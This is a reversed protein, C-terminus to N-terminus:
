VSEEGERQRALQERLKTVHHVGQQSAVPRQEARLISLAEEFPDLFPSRRRAPSSTEAAVKRASWTVILEQEARTMAVYLLRREEDNAEPSSAGRHPVFGDSVGVVFVSSWELGKARHFTGLAVADGHEEVVHPRELDVPKRVDSARALDPALYECPIGNAKLTDAILVLQANTRALVAFSRWSRGSVRLGRLKSAVFTAEEFDDVSSVLEPIAGSNQTARVDAGSNSPLVAAASSVIEPSSRHNADLVIIRTGEIRRDLTRLLSPDAGNFGYISQNPDGVCFLTAAPSLLRTIMAFQMPNVDQFEDVLVHRSRWHIAEAFTPDELARAAEIILDDFDILGQRTKEEEYRSWVDVVVQAGLTPRRRTQAVARAYSEPNLGTSKAWTIETDLFASAMTHHISPTEEVLRELVRRRDSLLSLPSLSRETRYIEVLELATRHFTGTRIGEIGLNWLRRRLEQAAKRSFTIALVHTPDVGDDVMRAVRLTLVRTKGAGAGAFVALRQDEATVAERQPPTLRAFPDNERPVAPEM